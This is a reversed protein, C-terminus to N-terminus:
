TVQIPKPTGETRLLATSQIKDGARVTMGWSFPFLSHPPIVNKQPLPLAQFPPPPILFLCSSPLSSGRGREGGGGIVYIQLKLLSPSLFYFRPLFLPPASSALPVISPAGPTALPPFQVCLLLSVRAFYVHYVNFSACSTRGELRSARGTAENPKNPTPITAAPGRPHPTIPLDFPADSESLFELPCIEQPQMVLATVGRRGGWGVWGVRRWGRQRVGM